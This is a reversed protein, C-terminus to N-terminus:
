VGKLRVERAGFVVWQRRSALSLSPKPLPQQALHHRPAM